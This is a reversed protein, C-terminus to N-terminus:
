GAIARASFRSRVTQPEGRPRPVTPNRLASGSKDYRTSESVTPQHSGRTTKLGHRLPGRLLGVASGIPPRIAALELPIGRPRFSSSFGKGPADQVSRFDEM